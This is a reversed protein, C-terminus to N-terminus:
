RVASAGGVVLGRDGKLHWAVGVPDAAEETDPDCVDVGHVGFPAGPTSLEQRRRFLVLVLDTAVDSIGVTVDHLDPLGGVGLSVPPGGAPWRDVGGRLGVSARRRSTVFVAMTGSMSPLASSASM